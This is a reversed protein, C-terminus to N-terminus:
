ELLKGPDQTPKVRIGLGLCRPCPVAMKSAPWGSGACDGCPESTFVEAASAIAKKDGPQGQCASCRVLGTGTCTACKAARRFVGHNENCNRCKQTVRAGLAAGPSAVRGTGNCEPCPQDVRGGGKCTECRLWGGRCGVASCGSDRWPNGGCSACRVSGTKSCVACGLQRFIKRGDCNNCRQSVNAGDVAGPAMVRGVGKCVPCPQDAKGKGDCASCPIRGGKCDQCFVVKRFGEALARLHPAAGAMGGPLPSSCLDNYTSRLGNGTSLSRQISLLLGAYHVAFQPSGLAGAELAADERGSGQLYQTVRYLLVQDIEGWRKGDATERYGSASLLSSASSDGSAAEVLHALAFLRPLPSLGGELLVKARGLHEAASFKDLADFATERVYTSWPQAAAGKPEWAGSAWPLAIMVARLVEGELPVSRLSEALAARDRASRCRVPDKLFADLSALYSATPFSPPTAPAPPTTGPDQVPAAKPAETPAEHRAPLVFAPVAVAVPRPFAVVSGTEAVPVRSRLPPRSVPARSVDASTTRGAALVVIVTILTALTAVIATLMLLRSSGPSRAVPVQRSRRLPVVRTPVREEDEDDWAESFKLEASGIRITDGPRLPSQTVPTGNLRLLGQGPPTRLENGERARFGRSTCPVAEPLPIDCTASSGLVSSQDVFFIQTSEPGKSSLLGTKRM